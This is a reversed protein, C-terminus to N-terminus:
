GTEKPGLPWKEKRRPAEGVDEFWHFPLDNWEEMTFEVQFTTEDNM